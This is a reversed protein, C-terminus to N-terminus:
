RRNKLLLPRGEKLYRGVRDRAEEGFPILREKAGKGLVRVFGSGLNLAAVPMNVLESVRMGTAYLLHLMAHNRLMLPSSADSATLLRDVEAISLVKPLRRGPKPLDILLSPDVAILKDGVLFRFFARLCSIRRANSRHSIGSDRCHSLYNRIHTTTIDAPTTIGHRAVFDLFSALDSQYADLTNDALRREAALYHLFLDQFPM